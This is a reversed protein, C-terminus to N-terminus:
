GSAARTSRWHRNYERRKDRNRWYYARNNARTCERCIRRGLRDVYTNEADYLHGNPCVTVAARAATVTSGRLLNTRRTVPELHAPNACPRHPCLHAAAPRCDQPSHCLHDLELGEPIPGVLAAYVVRHVTRHFQQGDECWAIHGYGSGFRAGTWIWCSAPDSAGDLRALARAVVREPADMPRAYTSTRVGAM